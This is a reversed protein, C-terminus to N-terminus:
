ELYVLYSYALYKLAMRPTKKVNFSITGIRQLQNFSFGSEYNLRTSFKPDAM